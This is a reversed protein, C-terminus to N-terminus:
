ALYMPVPLRGLYAPPTSLSPKACSPKHQEMRPQTRSRIRWGESKSIGRCATPDADDPRAAWPEAYIALLEQSPWQRRSSGNSSVALAEQRSRCHSSDITGEEAGRALWRWGQRRGQRRGQSHGQSYGQSHGQNHGHRHGHSGLRALM